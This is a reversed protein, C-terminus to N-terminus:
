ERSTLGCYMWKLAYYLERRNKTTVFERMMIFKPGQNGRSFRLMFSLSHNRKVWHWRISGNAGTGCGLLMTSTYQALPRIGTAETIRKETYLLLMNRGKRRGVYAFDNSV